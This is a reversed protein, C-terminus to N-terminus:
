INILKTAHHFLCSEKGITSTIFLGKKARTIAVYFSQYFDQHYEDKEITKDSCNYKNICKKCTSNHIFESKNLFPIFVYDWEDGKAKHINLLIVNTYKNYPAYKLLGEDNLVQSINSNFDINYKLCYNNYGNLLIKMDNYLEKESDNNFSSICKKIEKIINNYNINEIKNVIDILNSEINNIELTNLYKINNKKFDNIPLKEYYYKNSFLIAIKKNEDVKLINSIKDFIFNIEEKLSYNKVIFYDTSKVELNINNNRIEKQFNSIDVNKLRYNNKFEIKNKIGFYKYIDKGIYQGRAGAFNMISQFIDGLFFIKNNSYISRVLLLQPFTIDQCEDVFIYSYLNTYIKKLNFVNLLIISFYMIADYSIMNQNTCKNFYEIYDNNNYNINQIDEILNCKNNFNHDSNLKYTYEYKFNLHKKGHIKLISSALNHFNLVLVMDKNEFKLRNEITFKAVNSLTLVLIKKPFKLKQSEIIYNIKSILAETKGSGAPATIFLNEDTLIFNTQEADNKHKELIKDINSNNKM